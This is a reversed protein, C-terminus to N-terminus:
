RAPASSWLQAAGLGLLVAGFCALTTLSFNVLAATRSGDRALRLTEYAFSSYTTMGGLFGTTLALRLTPSFESANLATQMVAAILFCGAVNVILTGYPFAEGFRESAWVSVLYRTGTGLAGALCIWLLKSMPGSDVARAEGGFPSYRYPAQV